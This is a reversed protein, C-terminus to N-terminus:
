NVGFCHHVYPRKVLHGSFGGLSGAITFERTSRAHPFLPCAIKSSINSTYTPPRQHFYHACVPSITPVSLPFLPCLGPFYHACVLAITPVSWRRCCRGWRPCRCRCRCGRGLAVALAVAAAVRSRLCFSFQSKTPMINNQSATTPSLDNEQHNCALCM